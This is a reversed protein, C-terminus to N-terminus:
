FKSNKLLASYQKFQNDINYLKEARSRALDSYYNYNKKIQTLASNLNSCDPGEMKNPDGGTYPLIIGANGVLEKLSGSNYGVVPVGSALAEIVSNPCAPNIELCLYIKKGFFVKPINKRPIPGRLIVNKVKNLLLTNQLKKNINGYVDIKFSSISILANLALEGQVEGEVAIISFKLNKGGFQKWLNKVYKSQYVVHDALVCRIFNMLFYMARSKLFKFLGDKFHFAYDNIGDLRQIIRVGNLKNKILWLIKKTGGIIFLTSFNSYFKDNSYLINYGYESLKKEFRSQFSSPGGISRPKEIFYIYKKKISM